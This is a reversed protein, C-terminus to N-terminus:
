PLKIAPNSAASWTARVIAGVDTAAVREPYSSALGRSYQSIERIYSLQSSRRSAMCFTTPELGMM